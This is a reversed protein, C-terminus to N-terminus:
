FTHVKKLCLAITCKISMVTCQLWLKLMFISFTISNKFNVHNAKNSYESQYPLRSHFECYLIELSYRYMNGKMYAVYKYLFKIPIVKPLFFFHCKEKYKGITGM